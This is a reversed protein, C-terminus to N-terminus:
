LITTGEYEPDLPALLIQKPQKVRFLFASLDKTIDPVVQGVVTDCALLSFDV